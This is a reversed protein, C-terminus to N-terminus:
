RVKRHFSHALIDLRPLSSDPHLSEFGLFPPLYLAISSHLFPIPLSLFHTHSFFSFFSTYFLGSNKIYTKEKIFHSHASFICHCVQSYMHAMTPVMIISTHSYLSTHISIYIGCNEWPRAAMHLLDSLNPYCRGDVWCGAHHVM